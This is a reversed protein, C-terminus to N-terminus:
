YWRGTAMAYTNVQQWNLLTRGSAMQLLALTPGVDSVSPVFLSTSDNVANGGNVLSNLNLNHIVSPLSGALFSIPFTWTTWNRSQFVDTMTRRSWCVQTGDAFRVYEGNANTGREIIAGAIQGSQLVVNGVTVGGSHAWPTWSGGNQIRSYRRQKDFLSIAAQSRYNIDPWVESLIFYPQDTSPVNQPNAGGVGFFGSEAILNADEVFNVLPRLRAPLQGNPLVGGALLARAAANFDVLSGAGNAGFYPLKDVAPALSALAALAPKDLRAIYEALRQANAVTQQGPTTDYTIWYGQDSASTGRWPKALTIKTDSDISLVPVPNGNASDLGFQGAVLGSTQWGTGVGTVIASGATVSVTGTVYPTTM